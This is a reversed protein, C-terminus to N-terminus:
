EIKVDHEGIKPDTQPVKIHNSTDNGELKQPNINSVKNIIFVDDIEEQTQKKVQKPKSQVEAVQVEQKM